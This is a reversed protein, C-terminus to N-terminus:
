RGSGWGREGRREREVRADFDRQAEAQALQREQDSDSFTFSDTKPMRATQEDAPVDVGSRSGGPSPSNQLRERRIREWTSEGGPHANGRSSPSTGSPDSDPSYLSSLLDAPPPSNTSSSSSLSSSSSSSSDLTPRRYPYQTTQDTDNNSHDTASHEDFMGDGSREAHEGGRKPHYRTAIEETTPILPEKPGGEKRQQIKRALEAQAWYRFEALDKRLDQVNPDHQTMQKMKNSGVLAGIVQGQLRGLLGYIGYRSITIYLGGVKDGM